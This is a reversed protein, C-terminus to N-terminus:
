KQVVVSPMLGLDQLAEIIKERPAYGGQDDRNEIYRDQGRDSFWSYVEGEWGEPLNDRLRWLEGRYNELTAEYEREGYDQEDLIPYDDLREKIRCFEAFADTITGDQRVVRISVGSVHGVAFHDHREFVVDSDNGESFPALRENIVKENSQELLGAQPSSTYWIMWRDADELDSARYWVFCIFKQWNGVLLRAAEEVNTWDISTTTTMTGEEARM